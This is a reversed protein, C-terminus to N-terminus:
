KGPTDISELIPKLWVWPKRIRSPGHEQARQLARWLVRPGRDAAVTTVWADRRLNEWEGSKTGHPFLKRAYDLVEQTDVDIPAELEFRRIEKRREAKGERNGGSEAEREGSEGGEVSAAAEQRAIEAVAEPLTPDDPILTGDRFQGAAYRRAYETMSDPKGYKEATWAGAVGRVVYGVLSAVYDRDACQDDIAQLSWNWWDPLPTLLLGGKGKGERQLVRSCALDTIARSLQEQELRTHRVLVTHSSFAAAPEGLRYSFNLVVHLLRQRGARWRYYGAAEEMVDALLGFQTM